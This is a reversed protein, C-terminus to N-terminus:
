AVDPSLPLNRAAERLSKRLTTLAAYSQQVEAKMAQTEDGIPCPSRSSAAAAQTPMLPQDSVEKSLLSRKLDRLERRSPGIKDTPLDGPQTSALSKFSGSARSGSELSSKDSSARSGDNRRLLAANSLPVVNTRQENAVMVEEYIDLVEQGKFFGPPSTDVAQALKDGDTPPLDELAKALEADNIPSTM